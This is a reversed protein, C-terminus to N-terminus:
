NCVFKIMNLLIKKAVVSAPENKELANELDLTSIIIKGNGVPIVQLATYVEQQHDSVAGVLTEGQKIRLGYRETDYGYRSLCQYEWNFATNVPLDEFVPHTKVFFNGGYWVLGLDQRGTYEFIEKSSLYNAWEEAYNVILLVNGEMLWDLLDQQIRRGTEIPTGTALLIKGEPRGRKWYSEPKIGQNELFDNFVGATDSFALGPVPGDLDPKCAFVRDRGQLIRDNDKWLTAIIETYGEPIEDISIGPQLLQGYQDGGQLKVSYQKSFIEEEGQAARVELEYKGSLGLRNVGYIDIIVGTGAEVVMERPKVALYADRTYHSILEPDGKINRFCDVIGSHNELKMGEWGNIVYGDNINNIFMNEIIRGQYYLAVDGLSTTLKDVSPFAQRFNQTTLFSDYAAYLDLYDQGDWGLKRGSELDNKILELRAPTGIAGEEGWFVVEETHDTYKYYDEPGNYLASYYVGSGGAHHQDWWGQYRVKHDYPLMHMKFAATDRPVRGEYFHSPMYTSTYTICRTEDLEHFDQIARVQSKTPNKTWENQMNYIILSPHNRDRKIMRRMKEKVWAFSFSDRGTMYGGPEEYYLLGKKDAEDLINAQGIGRHFNLMNLGLKKAQSVQRAAMADTPYIGNIPWFGWSIASLLVIREGNLTFIKDGNREDVDFWRFGFNQTKRDIINEAQEIRVSLTYLKPNDVSWLEAQPYDVRTAIKNKGPKIKQPELQEQYVPKGRKGAKDWVELYIDAQQDTKNINNIEIVVDITSPIHKNKIYLDDIYLANRASIKVKGTIGGFGHSAPTIHDGWRYENFDRWTFNGNPDTIRVALFNPESFSVQDTIDVQFPTGNILDYGALRNNVFVESRMRVSEFELFIRKGAQDEPISFGTTFWSVGVYNGSVGFENGEEGWFFEEVTAPIRIAKGPNAKLAEWGFTPPNVPVESLNVPPLFLPDDVWDAEKDLRLRWTQNGLDLSYREFQESPRRCQSSLLILMLTTVPLLIRNM